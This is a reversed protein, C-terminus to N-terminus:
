KVVKKNGSTEQEARGSVEVQELLWRIAGQASKVARRREYVAGNDELARTIAKLTRAQTLSLRGIGFTRPVFAGPAANTLPVHIKVLSACSFGSVADEAKENAGKKNLEVDHTIKSM